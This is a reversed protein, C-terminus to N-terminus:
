QVLGGNASSRISTSLSPRIAYRSFTGRLPRVWRTMSGISKMARSAAKIGGGRIGSTLYWPTNAGREDHRASTVGFGGVCAVWGFAHPAGAGADDAGANAAGADAAGADAAGADAAGADRAGEGAAANASADGARTSVAGISTSAESAGTTSASAVM